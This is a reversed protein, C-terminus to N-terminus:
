EGPNAQSSPMADWFGDPVERHLWTPAAGASTLTARWRSEMSRDEEAETLPLPQGRRWLKGASFRSQERQWFEPPDERLEGVIAEFAALAAKAVAADEAEVLDLIAPASRASGLDGLAYLAAAATNPLSLYPTLLDADPAEGFLGLLRLSFPDANSGRVEERVVSRARSEDVQALSFLAVRRVGLNDDKVLSELVPRSRNGEDRHGLHRAVALRVASQAHKSFEALLGGSLQDHWGWADVAVAVAGDALPSADAGPLIRLLADRSLERLAEKWSPLLEEPAENLRERVEEPAPSGLELWAHLAAELIWPDETELEAKAVAVGAEGGVRLGDRHAVIRELHDEFDSLPLDVAFLLKRRQVNLTAVEELHEELIPRVTPAAPPSSPTVM